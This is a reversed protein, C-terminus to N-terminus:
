TRGCHARRKEGTSPADQMASAITFFPWSISRRTIAATTATCSAGSRTRMSRSSFGTTHVPPTDLVYSLAKEMRPLLRRLWDDEGCAQWTLYAAKVFRYEVDAEVPVRVYKTWNEKESPLKEPFTSVYDFIRGSASQTEGFHEVASTVDSLFYRGTRLMDSHDRIWLSKADPSRFGRVTKGDISMELVDAALFSGVLPVLEDIAGVGTKVWTGPTM